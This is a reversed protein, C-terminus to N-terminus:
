PEFKSREQSTHFLALIKLVDGSELRYFLVYRTRPIWIEFIDKESIYRGARPYRALFEGIFATIRVRARMAAGRADQSVLYTIQREIQRAATPTYIVKM